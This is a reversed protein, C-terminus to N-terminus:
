EKCSLLSSNLSSLQGLSGRAQQLAGEDVQRRQELERPRGCSFLERVPSNKVIFPIQASM